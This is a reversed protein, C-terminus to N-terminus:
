CVLLGLIASGRRLEGCVKKKVFFQKTNQLKFYQNLSKKKIM